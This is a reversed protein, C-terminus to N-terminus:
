TTTHSIVVGFYKSGVAAVGRRGPEEEAACSAPGGCASHTDFVCVFWLSTLCPFFGFNWFELLGFDGWVILTELVETGSYTFTNEDASGAPSDPVEVGRALLGGM